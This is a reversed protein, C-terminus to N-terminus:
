KCAKKIKSLTLEGKKIMGLDEYEKIIKKIADDYKGDIKKLDILDDKLVDKFARNKDVVATMRGKTKYTRTMAHESKPMVVAIGEKRPLFGLKDQPIHHLELDDGVVSDKFLDGYTGVQGVSVDLGFIDVGSTSNRVYSYFSLEGSM